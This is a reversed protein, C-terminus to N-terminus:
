SSVKVEFEGDVVQVDLGDGPAVQEVSRVVDRTERRRV